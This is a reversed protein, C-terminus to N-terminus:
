TLIFNSYLSYSNKPVLVSNGLKLNIIGNALNTMILALNVDFPKIKKPSAGTSIWNSVKKINDLIVSNLM